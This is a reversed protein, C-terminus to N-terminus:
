ASTQSSFVHIPEISTSHLPFVYGYGLSYGTIPDVMVKCSTIEGFQSFITFLGTNTLDTPLYKIFVNTADMGTGPLPPVYDSRPFGSSRLNGPQPAGDELASRPPPSSSTPTVGAPVEAAYESAEQAAMEEMIANEVAEEDVSNKSTELESKQSEVDQNSLGAPSPENAASRVTESGTKEQMALLAQDSTASEM